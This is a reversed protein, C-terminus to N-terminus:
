WENIFEVKKCIKCKVVKAFNKFHYTGANYGQSYGKKYETIRQKKMNRKFTNKTLDKKFM